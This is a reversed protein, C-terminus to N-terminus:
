AICRSGNVVYNYKQYFISKLETSYRAVTSYRFADFQVSFQVISNKHLYIPLTELVNRVFDQLIKFNEYHIINHKHLTEAQLTICKPHKASSKTKYKTNTKCM